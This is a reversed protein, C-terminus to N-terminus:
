VSPEGSWHRVKGGETIWLDRQIEDTLFGLMKPRAVGPLAVVDYVESITGEIGCGTPQM